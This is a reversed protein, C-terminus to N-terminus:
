CGEEVLETLAQTIRRRARVTHGPVPEVPIYDGGFSLPKNIPATVIHKKLYDEAAAV